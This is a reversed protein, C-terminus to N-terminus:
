SRGHLQLWSRFKDMELPELVTCGIPWGMLWELIVPHLLGYEPHGKKQWYGPFHNSKSGGRLGNSASPTPWKELSGCEIENTLHASTGLEWCGGDYTMGWAPLDKSCQALVVPACIRATKRSSLRLGFRKLLECCKSGYDAVPEPLDQVKVQAPYTKVHSDEVSCTLTAEGPSETSPESTMGSRSSQSCETENDSCCYMEQTNNSRVLGSLYTDLCFTQSSEVEQGQSCTSPKSNRNTTHWM